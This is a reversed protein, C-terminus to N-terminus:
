SVCCWVLDVCLLPALFFLIILWFFSSSWFFFSFLWQKTPLVHFSHFLLTCPPTIAFKFFFFIHLDFSNSISLFPQFFLLLLIPFLPSLLLWFLHRCENMIIKMDIQVYKITFNITTACIKRKLFFFFQSVHFM